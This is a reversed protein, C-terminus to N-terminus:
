VDRYKYVGFCRLLRYNAFAVRQHHANPVAFSIDYDQLQAQRGVDGGAGVRLRCQEQTLM